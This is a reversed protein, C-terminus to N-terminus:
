LSDKVQSRATSQRCRNEIAECFQRVDDRMKAIDEAKSRILAILSLVTQPDLAAIYAGDKKWQKAGYRPCMAIATGQPLVFVSGPADADNRFGWSWPGPTAKEALGQLRDLDIM